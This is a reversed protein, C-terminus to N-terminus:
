FLRWRRKSRPLRAVQEASPEGPGSDIDQANLMERAHTGQRQHSDDAPTRHTVWRVQNRAIWYHSRCPFSWNGISPELSASDGDYILRWGTPALPTVVEFGCGCCCNHVATAYEMSIYLVGPELTDPVADVLRHTLKTLKM